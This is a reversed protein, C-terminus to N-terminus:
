WNTSLTVTDWSLHVEQINYPIWQGSLDLIPGQPLTRSGLFSLWLPVRLAGWHLQQPVLYLAKGDWHLVALMRWAMPIFLFRGSGTAEFDQANIDAKLKISGDPGLKKELSPVTFVLRSTADGAKEIEMAWRKLAEPKVWLHEVVLEFKEFNLEQYRFPQMDVEVKRFRGDRAIQTSLGTITPKGKAAIGLADQVQLIIYRHLDSLRSPPNRPADGANLGSLALSLGLALALSIAMKLQKM